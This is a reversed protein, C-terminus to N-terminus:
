VAEAVITVNVKQTVRPLRYSVMEDLVLELTGSQIAQQIDVPTYSKIDLTDVQIITGVFPGIVALMKSSIQNVDDSTVPRTQRRTILPLVNNRLQIRAYTNFILYSLPTRSTYGGYAWGGMYVVANSDPTERQVFSIPSEMLADLIVGSPTTFTPEVGILPNGQWTHGTRLTAGDQNTTSQLGNAAGAIDPRGSLNYNANIVVSTKPNSEMYTTLTDITAATTPVPEIRGTYFDASKAVIDLADQILKYTAATEVATLVYNTKDEIAAATVSLIQQRESPTKTAFDTDNFIVFALTTNAPQLYFTDAADKLKGQSVTAYSNRNLIYFENASFDGPTVLYASALSQPVLLCCTQWQNDFIVAQGRALTQVQINTDLVSQDISSTTM